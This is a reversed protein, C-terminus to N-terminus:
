GRTTLPHANDEPAGRLVRVTWSEAGTQGINVRQAGLTLIREIEADRDDIGTTLDLHVRNKVTERGVRAHLV